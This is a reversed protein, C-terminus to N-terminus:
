THSKWVKKKISIQEEHHESDTMGTGTGCDKFHGYKGTERKKRELTKGNM